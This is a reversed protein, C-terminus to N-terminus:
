DLQQLRQKLQPLLSDMSHDVVENRDYEEWWSQPRVLHPNGDAAGSNQKFTKFFEYSQCAYHNIRLIDFSPKYTTLGGTIPQLQEDVTGYITKFYHANGALQFQSGQRGRVLSKIHSNSPFDDPARHRYNETLLGQPETQHGSSGFCAWYVGLASLRQYDYRALAERLDLSQPSFLFEDGDIFGMWDVEHNFQEYAYHYAALQPVAVDPTLNFAKIDFHRSLEMLVETSNDDCRHTFFYFKEFGVMAHFTIWEKIWPGRNRQITCLGLKM